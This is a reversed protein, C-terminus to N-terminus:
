PFTIIGYRVPSANDYVTVLRKTAGQNFFARRAQATRGYGDQAWRPLVDTGAEGLAGDFRQLNVRGADFALIAGGTASDGHVPSLGLNQGLSALSAAGYVAGCASVLYQNDLTAWIASYSSGCQPASTTSTVFNTGNNVVGYKYLDGWYADVRYLYTTAAGASAAGHTGYGLAGFPTGITGTNLDLERVADTYSTAAGF